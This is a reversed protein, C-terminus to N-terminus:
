HSGFSWPSVKLARDSKNEILWQTLDTHTHRKKSMWYQEDWHDQMDDRDEMRPDPRTVESTSSEQAESLNKLMDDYFRTRSERNTIQGVFGRTRNSLRYWMKSLRHALESQM